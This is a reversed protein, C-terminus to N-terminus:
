EKPFISQATKPNVRFSVSYVNTKRFLYSFSRCNCKNSLMTWWIIRNSTGNILELLLLHSEYKPVMEWYDSALELIKGFNLIIKILWINSLNPRFYVWLTHLSGFVWNLDLFCIFISLGLYQGIFHWYQRYGNYCELFLTWPSGKECISSM